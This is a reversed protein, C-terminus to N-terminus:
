KKDQWEQSVRKRAIEVIKEELMESFEPDTVLEELISETVRNEVKEQIELAKSELAEELEPMVREVGIEGFHKKVVREIDEERPISIQEVSLVDEHKKYINRLQEDTFNHYASDYSVAHGMLGDIITQNVEEEKLASSFGSRLAHPRAPNMDAEKMREKSVLGSRSAIRKFVMDVAGVDLRKYAGNKRREQVFLPDGRNVEGRKRQREDLYRKLAKCADRGFCTRYEVGAKKRVLKILLPPDDLSGRIPDEVMIDGVDLRLLDGVSMGSQWLCLIIATDRTTKSHEVLRRVQGQRINLKRNETKRTPRPLGLKKKEIPLDNYSLFETLGALYTHATSLAFGKEGSYKQTAEHTLWNFFGKLITVEPHRRNEIDKRRDEALIRVLNTPTIKEELKEDVYEGFLHFTRRYHKRIESNKIELFERVKEEMADM